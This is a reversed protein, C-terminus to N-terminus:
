KSENPVVEIVLLIATLDAVSLQETLSVNNFLYVNSQESVPLTLSTIIVTDSSAFLIWLSVM